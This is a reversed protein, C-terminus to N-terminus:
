EVSINSRSEVYARALNKVKEVGEVCTEPFGKEFELWKKFFVKMKKSSFKYQVVREFLRRAQETYIGNIEMTIYISWIDSRKPYNAIVSEFFTRGREPDGHRYEFQAFKVIFKVDIM